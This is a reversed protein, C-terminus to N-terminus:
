PILGEAKLHAWAIGARMEAPTFQTYALDRVFQRRGDPRWPAEIRSLDSFALSSAAGNTTFAPVGELLADIAVNSHHTVVAHCNQLLRPLDDLGPEFLTGYIPEAAAWSPKPRYVIPRSTHRRLEDVTMREWESPTFGEVEACKASMGAVIIHDGQGAWEKITLGLRDARESDHEVAQFYDTAHRGNVVVKHYGSLSGGERRGWYGLDVYVVTKGAARYDSFVKRLNIDFGYFVAIEAEPRRYCHSPHIRVSEGCVEIGRKMAEAIM